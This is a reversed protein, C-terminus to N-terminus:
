SGLAQYALAFTRTEIWVLLVPNQVQSAWTVGPPNKLLTQLSGLSFVISKCMKRFNENKKRGEFLNPKM